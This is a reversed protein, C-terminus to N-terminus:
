AVEDEQQYPCPGFEHDKGCCARAVSAEAEFTLEFLLSDSM